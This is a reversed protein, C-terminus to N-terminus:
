NVPPPSYYEEEDLEELGMGMLELLMEERQEVSEAELLAQKEGPPFPLAVALGNLLTVGPMLRLREMDFELEHEEAFAELAALLRGPSLEQQPEVLDMSFEDYSAQVRRYGKELPLEEEVRFRVVGKLLVLYRGDPQREAQEIHGACGVAYLDPHDPQAKPDPRNDRQPVKPQIMGIVRAGELADEVMHVYRPEFVNLPLYNGPLLLSGTLPFVPLHEPAPIDIM